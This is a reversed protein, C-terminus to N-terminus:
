ATYTCEYTDIQIKLPAAPQKIQEEINTENRGYKCEDTRVNWISKRMIPIYFIKKMM